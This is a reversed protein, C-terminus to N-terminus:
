GWRSFRERLKVLLILASIYVMAVILVLWWRWSFAGLLRLLMVNVWYALLYLFSGLAPASNRKYFLGVTGYAAAHLAGEAIWNIPEAWVGFSEFPNPVWFLRVFASAIKMAAYLSM